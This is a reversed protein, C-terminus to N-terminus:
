FILIAYKKIANPLLKHSNDSWLVWCGKSTKKTIIGIMGKGDANWNPSWKIMSGEKM